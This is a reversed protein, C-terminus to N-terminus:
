CIVKWKIWAIKKGKCGLGVFVEKPGKCNEKKGM